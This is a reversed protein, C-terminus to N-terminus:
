SALSKKLFAEPGILRFYFIEITVEWGCDAARLGLAAGAGTAENARRVSRSAGVRRRVPPLMASLAFFRRSFNSELQRAV